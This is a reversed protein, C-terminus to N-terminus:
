EVVDVDQQLVDGSVAAPVIIERTFYGLKGSSTLGAVSVAYSQAPDLGTLLVDGAEHARVFRFPDYTAQNLPRMSIAYGEATAWPEWKVVMQGPTESWGAQVNYAPHPAGAINAIVALNAQTVKRLYDYDIRFWTDENSNVLDPDEESEILRIAPMGVNVFERQDGWRGDRDLQNIMTVPFTPLYLGSVLDYYRGLEGNPSEYVDEAFLRVAQRIGARGGVGDYNIAALVNMGDLYANQAFHRSGFTGQEEGSVALFIIDNEWECCSLIRATELLLAVGSGNDNAGTAFSEGDFLDPARNDYHAMVVVVGNGEGTGPLRAVVNRQNSVAGGYNLTFDDFSVDLRGNGVRLFENLLWRRTAGIGFTDSETDSFASRTGFSELTRVYAELQQHSVLDVLGAIQPDVDPVIDSVPDVVTDSSLGLTETFPRATPIPTPMPRREPEELVSCGALVLLALLMLIPLRAFKMVICATM